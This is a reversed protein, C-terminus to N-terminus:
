QDTQKQQNALVVAPKVPSLLGCLGRLRAQVVHNFKVIAVGNRYIHIAAGLGDTKYTYVRWFRM